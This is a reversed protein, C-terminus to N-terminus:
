AVDRHEKALIADIAAAVEAATTWQHEDRGADPCILSYLPDRGRPAHCYVHIDPRGILACQGSVLAVVKALTKM